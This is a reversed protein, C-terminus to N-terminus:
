INIKRVLETKGTQQHNTEVQFVCHKKSLLESSRVLQIFNIM